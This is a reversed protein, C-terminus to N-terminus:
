DLRKITMAVNEFVFDTDDTVGLIYLELTNDKTLSVINDGSMPGFDTAGGASFKRDSHIPLETALQVTGGSTYPTHGTGNIDAALNDQLNFNAGSVGAVTFIRTNVEITGGVSKIAVKNGNSFGHGAATVVVPDAETMETIATATEALEFMSYKFVKNAAESEGSGTFQASYDGDAGIAINNSTNDGDSRNEPSDTDFLIFQEWSAVLAIDTATTNDNVSVGAYDPDREDSGKGWNTDNYAIYQVITGSEITEATDVGEGLNDGSAPFIQLANAGDNIIIQVRGPIAPRLTVTDNDNAVTSVQNNQATLAGQGQTQTTSATIGATVDAISSHKHLGGAWAMFPASVMLLAFLLCIRKM